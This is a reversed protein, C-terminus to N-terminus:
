IADSNTLSCVLKQVYVRIEKAIPQKLMNANITIDLEANIYGEFHLHSEADRLSTSHELENTEISARLGALHVWGRNHDAAKEWEGEVSFVTNYVM